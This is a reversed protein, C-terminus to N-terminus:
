RRARTRTMGSLCTLSLALSMAGPEPQVEVEQPGNFNATQDLNVGGVLAFADILGIRFDRVGSNDLGPLVTFSITDLLFPGTNPAISGDRHRVLFDPEPGFAQSTGFVDPVDLAFGTRELEGNDYRALYSLSTLNGPLGATDLYIEFTIAAGVSTQIDLIADGDLQAGVPKFSLTAGYAQVAFFLVSALVVLLASRISNEM